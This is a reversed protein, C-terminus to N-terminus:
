ARHHKFLTHSFVIFVILLLGFFAVTSVQSDFVFKQSLTRLIVAVGTFVDIVLDATFGVVAVVQETLTQWVSVVKGLSEGLGFLVFAFLILCLIFARSREEPKRLGSVNSEAKIVVTKTFNKPLEFSQQPSDFALSIACFMQKQSHLEDACKECVSLHLEFNQEDRVSLEGDLFAPIEARLCTEETTLTQNLM